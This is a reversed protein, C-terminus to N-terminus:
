PVPLEDLLRAIIQESNLGEAEAEYTVTVRHRLVDMAVSKVDHPTVYSRGELFAHARSTLAINITARPSAGVRILPAIHVGYEDPRRTAHVLRVIYRKVKEDLYLRNVVQRAEQIADLHVMPTPLPMDETTGALDLVRMEEDESPYDMIVKMMFRDLQAEPLPYTGEQELPNQTALVFFPSPLLFTQEGITVQKEQMAELLASQVKAPARNIEDALIFNAFVPGHKVRFKAEKPDYIETGVIDAPLMDPTFQIRNFKGNVLSALTKLALTKALGPVGELLIHGKVLLSILLRDVLSSQGILYRAIEERLPQIWNSSQKLQAEILALNETTPPQQMTHQTM